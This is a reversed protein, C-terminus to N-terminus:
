ARHGKAFFNQFQITSWDVAQSKVILWPLSVDINSESDNKFERPKYEGFTIVLRSRWAPHNSLKKDVIGKLKGDFM